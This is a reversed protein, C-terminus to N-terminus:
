CKFYKILNNYRDLDSPHDSSGTAGRRKLLKAGVCINYGSAAMLKGAGIDAIFERSISSRPDRQTFHTLEHGLLRAIESSNRAYKIMGSCVTIVGNDYWANLSPNDIIILTPYKILGAGDVLRKYVTLAEKNSVAQAPPSIGIILLLGWGVMCRISKNFVKM